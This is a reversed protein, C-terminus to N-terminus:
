GACPRRSLCRYSGPLRTLPGGAADDQTCGILTYQGGEQVRFLHSHGGSVVLCLFPPSLEPYTLYNAAIHGQIHNVAILPKVPWLGIGQCLFRGGVAGVLGPGHTVAVADIEDLSCHAQALTEDLVVDIKELHARSAIEPVVGGYVRHVDIQSYIQNSLIHRGAQVIACATEDCSTEIALIRAHGSAALAAAKQRAADQYPQRAM